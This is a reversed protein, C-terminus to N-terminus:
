DAEDDNEEPTYRSLENLAWSRIDDDEICNIVHRFDLGLALEVNVITEAAKEKAKEDNSIAAFIEILVSVPVKTTLMNVEKQYPKLLEVALLEIFEKIRDGHCPKPKCSCILIIDEDLLHKAALKMIKDKFENNTEWQEYAWEDFKAIAEERSNEKLTYPNGFITGRGIYIGPGKYKHRNVVKIM